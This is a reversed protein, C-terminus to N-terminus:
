RKCKRCGSVDGLYIWQGTDGFMTQIQGPRLSGPFKPNKPTYLYIKCDVVVYYASPYKEAHKQDDRGPRGGPHGSGDPHTHIPHAGLAGAAPTGDPTTAKINGGHKGAKQPESHQFGKKPDKPDTPFVLCGAEAGCHDTGDTLDEAAKEVATRLDPYTVGPKLGLIDNLGVPDNAGYRYLNIGGREGLPDRALWTASSRPRYLTTELGSPDHTWHGGFGFDELAHTGLLLDPAGWPSYAASFLLAQGNNALVERTSNQHDAVRFRATGSDILGLGFYTRTISSGSAGRQQAEVLGDWVFTQNSTEAGGDLERIRVRKSEGDYTFQSEKTGAIIKVMRNEQDWQFERVVVGAATKEFRTNGNLDYEYNQVVGTTPVSYQNTRVNGNGDTAVVTVTNGGSALDVDAEFTYPVGGDASKVVAPQGNVTVTAPENLTGTFKTKGYGRESTLQNLNNVQANRAVGDETVQIRNGAGDYGYREDRIVTGGSNRRVASTLQQIPDYGFTWTTTVGNQLQAWTNITRDPNYTYDFQSIVTPPVAASLNKIQSLLFDTTAGYYSYDVKMGNPYNVFDVRNSQGMYAYSFAGLNNTVASVRGRTDFTAEDSYSATTFTADDVIQTKKLRGLEDYTYKLTDDPFPGNVRALQGAGLTTGDVPHYVYSTTGVGDVRSTLRPFWPDYAYTVDATAPDSYNLFLLRDDLSYEFTKSRALADFERRLRGSFDYEYDYHSGDAYTKRTVRGRADRTWETSNGSGDVLRKMEGCRCWGYQTTRGSADRTLVRERLANSQHRTWRGARDRTAILSHDAYEFQEFSADPYTVVRVRDLNDYDYTLVYGESDTMTRVRGASDYTYTRNGGPVDGTLTLLKGYAPSSTNMEYTYTTVEGKANTVTAVQANTANYTYTTTRGAGDTMTKPRHPPTTGDYTFSSVTAWTSAGTKQRVNLVDQGNPQYNIQTERGLPDITGNPNGVANYTFRYAQTTKVGAVNEVLRAKVSPSASTGMIHPQVQGPYNYWIRGELPPKESELIGIATDASGPQVWHYLHAKSYDGPHAKMQLKDWYFSNRDDNDTTLFNVVLPDPTPENITSPLGTVTSNLNYEIRERDGQPDKAEIYRILTATGLDLPSLTFTSTGYPTTMSTMEGASNYGFSSVIGVPDQISQLRLAGGVNSYAFTSVRSFPDAISTVLYPQGPYSYTFNTSLGAADILQHIRSPYAGDYVVSIQKGQPDVVRSLFVKRQTGTTGIYQEYYEERGDPYVKKYTNATLRHLVAGTRVDRAYTQTGSSFGSHTEGGGDPRRLNINSGPASPNDELYSVWTSVWSTSFNTFSFTIPQAAERQHYSVMVRLEPGIGSSYRVPEDYVKLSALLIHFTYQAMAMPGGCPGPPFPGEPGTEDPSTEGSAGKGFIAAGEELSVASWGVPLTGRPVLFYGSGEEDIAEPSMLTQNGFTPDSLLYKGDQERILAGFHGVKWHIVSPNLIPSGPTRKAMQLQVGLTSSMQLVEALSFGSPPSQAGDLFAKTRSAAAPDLLPAINALAYAGCRFSVGPRQQMMWRGELASNFKVRADGEFVRRGAERFIADVEAARGVRANMKAYEAIAQNGIQTSARDTGASSLEWARRWFQLARRFYGTDYAITGLNLWLSPAWRSTPFSELFNLLPEVREANALLAYQAIAAALARTELPPSSGATPLLPEPFVTVGTLEEDSPSASLPRDPAGYTDPSPAM